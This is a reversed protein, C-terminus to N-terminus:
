ISGQQQTGFFSEGKAAMDILMQPAQYMAGLDAYKKTIEVFNAIGISDLYRFV